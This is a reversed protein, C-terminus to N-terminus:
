RLPDLAPLNKKHSSVDTFITDNIKKSAARKLVAPNQIPKM